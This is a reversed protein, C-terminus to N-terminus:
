GLDSPTPSTPYFYKEKLQGRQIDERLLSYIKNLAHLIGNQIHFKQYRFPNSFLFIFLLSWFNKPHHTATCVPKNGNAMM